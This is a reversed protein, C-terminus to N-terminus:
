WVPAFFVLVKNSGDPGGFWQRVDYLITSRQWWGRRRRIVWTVCNCRDPTMWATSSTSPWQYVLYVSFMATMTDKGDKAKLSCGTGTRDASTWGARPLFVYWTRGPVPQGYAGFPCILLLSSAEQECVPLLMMICEFEFQLWHVM